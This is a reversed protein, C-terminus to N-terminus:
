SFCFYYAVAIALGYVICVFVFMWLFPDFLSTDADQLGCTCIGAMDRARMLCDGDHEEEEILEFAM